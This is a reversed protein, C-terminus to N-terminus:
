VTSGRGLRINETAHFNHSKSEAPPAKSEGRPLNRLIKRYNQTTVSERAAENATVGVPLFSNKVPARWDFDAILPGYALGIGLSAFRPDTDRMTEAEVILTEVAAVTRSTSLYYAIAGKHSLFRADPKSRDILGVLMPLTEENYGWDERDSLALVVFDVRRGSM